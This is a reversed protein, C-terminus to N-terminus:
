VGREKDPWIYRHLQLHLRVDLHIDLIWEALTSPVLKGFVPSFLINGRNIDACKTEILIKAFLFDEYNGIVFKLQDNQTLRNLNELDNKNNEGSTPCKIDVIKACRDDIIRIDVSGNTEVIVEYEEELLRVALTQTEPQLLPEGGTLEILPCNYRAIRDLIDPIEMEVGDSYAYVTDCYSCRLNCGTLRIFVCPRGSFLSEGQISYFIENVVVTM